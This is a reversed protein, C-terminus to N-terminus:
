VWVRFIVTTELVLCFLNGAVTKCAYATGTINCCLQYYYLDVKGGRFASAMAQWPVVVLHLTDNPKYDLIPSLNLHHFHRSYHHYIPGSHSRSRKYEFNTNKFIYLHNCELNEWLGTYSIGQIFHPSFVDEWRNSLCAESKLKARMLFYGKISTVTSQDPIIKFRPTPWKCGIACRCCCASARQKAYIMQLRVYLLKFTSM